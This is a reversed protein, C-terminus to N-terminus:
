VLARSDKYEVNFENIKRFVNIQSLITNIKDFNLDFIESNEFLLEKNIIPSIVDLKEKIGKELKNFIDLNVNLEKIIKKYQSGKMEIRDLLEFYLSSYNKGKIEKIGLHLKKEIDTIINLIFFEINKLLREEKELIRQELKKIKDETKSSKLPMKRLQHYEKKDAIISEILIDQDFKSFYKLTELNTFIKNKVNLYLTNYYSFDLIELRNKFVKVDGVFESQMDVVLNLAKLLDKSSDINKLKIESLLAKNKLDDFLDSLEIDKEYGLTFTKYRDIVSTFSFLQESSLEKLFGYKKDISQLREINKEYSGNNISILLDLEKKLILLENFTKNYEDSNVELTCLLQQKEVINSKVDDIIKLINEKM